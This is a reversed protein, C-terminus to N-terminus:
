LISCGPCLLKEHGMPSWGKRLLDHAALMRGDARIPTTSGCASCTALWQWDLANGVRNATERMQLVERLDPLPATM